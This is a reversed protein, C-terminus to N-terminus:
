DSTVFETIRESGATNSGDVACSIAFRITCDSDFHQPDFEGIVWGQMVPEHPLEAGRRLEFV